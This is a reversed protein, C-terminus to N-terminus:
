TAKRVDRQLRSMDRDFRRQRIEHLKSPHIGGEGRTLAAYTRKSAPYFIRRAHAPGLRRRAIQLDNRSFVQRDDEFVQEDLPREIKNARLSFGGGEEPCIRPDSSLRVFYAEVEPKTLLVGAKKAYKLIFQPPVIEGPQGESVFTEVSLEVKAMDPEVIAKKAPRTPRLIRYIGDQNYRLRGDAEVATLFESFVERPAREGDFASWALFGIRVTRRRQELANDIAQRALDMVEQSVGPPLADVEAVAEATTDAAEATADYVLYPRPIEPNHLTDSAEATM